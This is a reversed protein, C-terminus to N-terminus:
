PHGHIAINWRARARPVQLLPYSKPRRKLARPELRGPRNAVRVQAILRFLHTRTLPDYLLGRGRWAIWLQVTHKFSLQRPDVGAAHAAQAMLLRILNHALLYIWMQKENMGPTRCNLAQMGLTIKISRLDLEVGWRRAYLTNLEQKSVRRPNLLTTVLIRGGVQVERVQLAQPASEYQTITMWDPKTRPRCWRVRHDRRGLREGRRFDTMRAGHQGFLVDVGAALMTAILFYDCFLADALMVDGREFAGLLGRLLAMEGTGKGSFPGIGADLVAASSLCIVGVVRALPFGLGVGQTSHQPYRLRNAPTDPMSVKTGDVLKVARGRWGWCAQARPQLLRGTERTLAAPMQGPLRERARCYGATRISQPSLGEAARQAAWANVAQQCSRDASLAQMVFMSLTVTPPYLRERHQPLHAEVQDLLSDSTLLNFFDVTDLQGAHQQLRRQQQHSRFRASRDPL